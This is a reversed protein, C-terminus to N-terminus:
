QPVNCKEVLIVLHIDIVITKCVKDGIEKKFINKNKKKM